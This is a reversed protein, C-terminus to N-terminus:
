NIITIIYIKIYIFTTSWFSCLPSNFIILLHMLSTQSFISFKENLVAILEIIIHKFLKDSKILLSVNLSKKNTKFGKAGFVTLYQNELNEM